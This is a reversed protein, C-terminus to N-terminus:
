KAPAAAPPMLSAADAGFHLAVILAMRQLEAVGAPDKAALRIVAGTKTREVRVDADLAPGGMM